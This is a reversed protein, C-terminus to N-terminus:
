SLASACSTPTPPAGQQVQGPVYIVDVQCYERQKDAKLRALNTATAEICIVPGYIDLMKVDQTTVEILATAGNDDYVQQGNVKLDGSCAYGAPVLTPQNQPVLFPSKASPPSALPTETPLSTVPPSVTTPPPTGDLAFWRRVMYHRTATGVNAAYYLFNTKGTMDASGNHIGTDADVLTPYRFLRDEAQSPLAPCPILWSWSLLDTSTAMRFGQATHVIALFRNLYTNYSVSVEAAYHDDVSPRSLVATSSSGQVPQWSVKGQTPRYYTTYAGPNRAQKIRARAVHIADDQPPNWDTYFVWVFGNWILASPQGAGTFSGSNAHQCDHSQHQGHTLLSRLPWHYGQDNSIALGVSAIKAGDACDVEAHYFALRSRASTGLQIVSSIGAYDRDFRRGSPGFVAHAPDATLHDLSKGTFRYSRNVATVYVEVRKKSDSSNVWIGMRTDPVYKLDTRGGLTVNERPGIVLNVARGQQATPTVTCPLSAYGGAAVFLLIARAFSAGRWIM